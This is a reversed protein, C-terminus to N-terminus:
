MHIEMRSFDIKEFFNYEHQTVWLLLGDGTKEIRDVGDITIVVTGDEVMDWGTVNYFDDKTLQGPYYNYVTVKM